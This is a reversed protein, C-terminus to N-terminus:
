HSFPSLPCDKMAKLLSTEKESVSRVRIERREVVFSGQGNGDEGSCFARHARFEDWRVTLVSPLPVISELVRQGGLGDKISKM